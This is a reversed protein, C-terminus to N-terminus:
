TFKILVDFVLTAQFIQFNSIKIINGYMVDRSSIKHCYSIVLILTFYFVHSMMKQQNKCKPVGRTIIVM